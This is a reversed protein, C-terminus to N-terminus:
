EDDYADGDAEGDDESSALLADLAERASEKDKKGSKKSKHKEERSGSKKSKKGKDGKSKKKLPEEDDGDDDMGTDSDDSGGVEDDAAGDDSDSPAVYDGDGDDDEEDDEEDEEEDEDEYVPEAPAPAARKSGIPPMNDREKILDTLTKLHKTALNNQKKVAALTAIDLQELSDGGAAEFAARLAARAANAAAEASATDIPVAPDNVPVEIPSERDVAAMAAPAAPAAIRRHLLCDFTKRAAISSVTTRLARLTAATCTGDLCNAKKRPFDHWTVATKGRFDFRTGPFIATVYCTM